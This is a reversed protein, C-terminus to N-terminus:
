AFAVDAARVVESRAAPYTLGRFYQNTHAIIQEAGIAVGDRMGGYTTHADAVLTVAYGRAAAAAATTRVCYDSQAGVVVVRTVGLEALVQALETGAFADRHTKHVVPEGDVPALGHALRWGPTGRDLGPGSHQVWVVPAGEGRARDVLAAVRAIVGDADHCGDVVDVQLDIVLLAPRQGTM